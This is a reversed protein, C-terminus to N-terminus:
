DLLSTLFSLFRNKKNRTGIRVLLRTEIPDEQWLRVPGHFGKGPQSVLDSVPCSPLLQGKCSWKQCTHQACIRFLYHWGYKECLKVLPFCGAHATASLRVNQKELILLLVSLCNKSVTGYAKIGRKKGQCSGDQALPLVRSHQLLGIYIVQAHEEYSTLDIILQMPEQRFFPMIQALLTDWTKETDIRANSLFRELRREISSAKAESEALLEEAVLPIVLSKAKIVGPASFRLHKAKIVTYNPSSTRSWATLWVTSLPSSMPITRKLNKTRSKFVIEEKRRGEEV